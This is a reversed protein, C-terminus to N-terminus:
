GRTISQVVYVHKLLPPKRLESPQEAAEQTTIYQTNHLDNADAPASPDPFRASPEDNSEPSTVFDM